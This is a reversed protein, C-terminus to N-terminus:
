IIYGLVNRTKEFYDCNWGGKIEHNVFWKRLLIRFSSEISDKCLCKVNGDTITIMVARRSPAIDRAARREISQVHGDFQESFPSVSQDGGYVICRVIIAGSSPM